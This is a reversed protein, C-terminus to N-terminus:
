FIGLTISTLGGTSDCPHREVGLQRAAQADFNRDHLTTHLVNSVSLQGSRDRVGPPQTDECSERLRRGLVQSRFNPPTPLHRFVGEADVYRQQRGQHGWVVVSVSLDDDVLPHLDDFGSPVAGAWDNGLQLRSAGNNEVLTGGDAVCLAGDLETHIEQGNVAEFACPSYDLM